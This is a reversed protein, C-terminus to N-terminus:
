DLIKKIREVLANTSFPKGMFEEAGLDRGRDVNEPTSMVSLLLVPIKATRPDERIMRLMDFGNVRDGDFALDLVVLDPLRQRIAGMGDRVTGKLCTEFNELRLKFDLVQRLCPDDDVILIYKRKM